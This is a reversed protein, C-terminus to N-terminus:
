AFRLGNDYKISEIIRGTNEATKETAKATREANSDAAFQRGDLVNFAGKPRSQFSLQSALNALQNQANRVAADLKGPGNDEGEAEANLRKQRAAEVAADFEKRATQLENKATQTDIQHDTAIKAMADEHKTKANAMAKQFDDDAKNEKKRYQEETEDFGARIANSNSM